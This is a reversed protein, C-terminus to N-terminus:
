LGGPIPAAAAPRPPRQGSQMGSPPVAAFPSGQRAQAAMQTIAAPVLDQKSTKGFTSRLSRIAEALANYEDSYVDFSMQLIRMGELMMKVQARAAEQNGRGAGPSLAPSAGPGGPGGAPNKPLAPPPAESGL